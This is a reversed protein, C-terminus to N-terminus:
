LYKELLDCVEEVLSFCKLSHMKHTVGEDETLLDKCEIKQHNENFESIFKRIITKTEDKRELLNDIDKDTFGYKLGLLM